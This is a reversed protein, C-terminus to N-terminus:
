SFRYSVGKELGEIADLKSTEEGSLTLVFSNCDSLYKIEKKVLLDNAYTKIILADKGDITVRTFVIAGVKSHDDFLNLGAFDKRNLFSDDATELDIQSALNNVDGSDCNFNTGYLAKSRRMRGNSKRRHADLQKTHKRRLRIDESEADRMRNRTEFDKDARSRLEADMKDRLSQPSDAEARARLEKDFRARRALAAQNQRGTWFGQHREELRVLRRASTNENIRSATMVDGRTLIGGNLDEMRRLYAIGDPHIRPLVRDVLEPTAERGLNRPHRSVLEIPRNTLVSFTKDRMGSQLAKRGRNLGIAGQFILCGYFNYVMNNYTGSVFESFDGELIGNQNANMLSDTVGYIPAGLIEESLRMPLTIKLSGLFTEDAYHLASQLLERDLRQLLEAGGERRIGERIQSFSANRLLDDMSGFGANQAVRGMLEPSEELLVLGGRRIGGSGHTFAQGSNELAFGTRSLIHTRSALIRTMGFGAVTAVGETFSYAADTLLQNTQFSTGSTFAARVGTRTVMCAAAAQAALRATLLWATVGASAGFTVTTAAISAIIAASEAVVQVNREVAEAHTLASSRSITYASQIESLTAGSQHLELVRHANQIMKERTNFGEMGFTNRVLDMPNHLQSYYGLRMQSEKVLLDPIYLVPQFEAEEAMQFSLMVEFQHRNNANIRGPIDQNPPSGDGLDSIVWSKLDVGFSIANPDRDNKFLFSLEGLTGDNKHSDIIEVIKEEERTGLGAMSEWLFIADRHLSARFHAEQLRQAQQPTLRSQEIVELGRIVNTSNGQEMAIQLVNYRDGGQSDRGMLKRWYNDIDQTSKLSSHNLRTLEYFYEAGRNSAIRTVLERREKNKSRDELYLLVKQDFEELSHEKLLATVPDLEKGNMFNALAEHLESELVGNSVRNIEEVESAIIQNGREELFIQYHAERGEDSLDTPYNTEAYEKYSDELLQNFHIQLDRIVFEEKDNWFGNYSHLRLILSTRNGDEVTCDAQTMFELGRKLADDNINQEFVAQLTRCHYRDVQRTILKGNQDYQFSGDADVVPVINQQNLFDATEQMRQELAQIGENGQLTRTDEVVKKILEDDIIKDADLEHLRAAQAGIYDNNYLRLIRTERVPKSYENRIASDLSQGYSNLFREGLDSLNEEVTFTSGQQRNAHFSELTTAVTDYGSLGVWGDLEHTKRQTDQVYNEGMTQYDIELSFQGNENKEGFIQESSLSASQLVSEINVRYAALQERSYRERNGYGHQEANGSYDRTRVQRNGLDGRDRGNTEALHQLNFISNRALTEQYVQQRALNLEKQNLDTALAAQWDNIQQNTIQNENNIVVSASSNHRARQEEMELLNQLIIISEQEVTLPNGVIGLIQRCGERKNEDAIKQLSSTILDSNNVVIEELREVGISRRLRLLSLEINPSDLAEHLLIEGLDLQDLDRIEQESRKLLRGEQYHDVISQHCFNLNSNASYFTNVFKVVTAERFIEKGMVAQINIEGRSNSIHQRLVWLEHTNLGKTLEEIHELDEFTNDLERNIGEARTSILRISRDARQLALADVQSFATLTLTEADLFGNQQYIENFRNLTQDPSRMNGGHRNFEHHLRNRYVVEERTKLAVVLHAQEEISKLQELLLIQEPSNELGNLYLERAARMEALKKRSEELNLTPNCDLEARIIEGDLTGIKQSLSELEPTVQQLQNLAELSNDVSIRQNEEIQNDTQSTLTGPTTSEGDLQARRILNLADRCLGVLGKQRVCPTVSTASQDTSTESESTQLRQKAL